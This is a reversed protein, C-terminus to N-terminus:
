FPPWPQDPPYGEPRGDSPIVHVTKMPVPVVSQPMIGVQVLLNMNASLKGHDPHDMGVVRAAVGSSYHSARALKEIAEPELQRMGIDPTANIIQKALRDAMELHQQMVRPRHQIMLFKVDADWAAQLEAALQVREVNWKKRVVLQKFTQTPIDFKKALDQDTSEHLFYKQKLDQMELMGIHRRPNKKPPPQALAEMDPSM